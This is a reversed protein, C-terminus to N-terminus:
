SRGGGFARALSARLNRSQLLLVILVVVAEVVLNYEPPVGSTLISTILSQIVLVGIVTMGLYFRGGVLSGGGIVVALIADLESNLGQSVPDSTHTDAAIIVGACAACVGCVVYAALKIMKANIGALDAAAANGGVTEVFLGFATRRTLLWLLAFIGAFVFLRSPLTVLHGTSIAAFFPSDFSPDTGGFALNIMQGIGRGGVMLILTAVIPQIDLIAVLLGNWLGCAVGAAIALILVLAPSYDQHLGWSIISGSIAIVAGVSLDIGKTGIVIAMGLAVLAIPMGRYLVDILSGFLHGEVIRIRFFGPTVLGDVILILALALLPWVARRGSLSRWLARAGGTSALSTVAQDSM